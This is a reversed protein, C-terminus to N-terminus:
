SPSASCRLALIVSCARRVHLGATLDRGNGRAKRKLVGNSPHSSTSSLTPRSVRPRSVLFFFSYIIPALFAGFVVQRITRGRSIVGIFMGVFPAWSVWRHHTPSRRMGCVDSVCMCVCVLTSRYSGVLAIPVSSSVLGLLLHDV